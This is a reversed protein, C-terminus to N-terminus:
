KAQGGMEVYHYGDLSEMPFNAPRNNRLMPVSRFTGKNKAWDRHSSPDIRDSGSFPIRVQVTPTLGQGLPVANHCQCGSSHVYREPSHESHAACLWLSVSCKVACFHRKTSARERLWQKLPFAILIVYQTNTAKPIWSAVRMRWIAM